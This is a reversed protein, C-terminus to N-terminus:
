SIKARKGESTDASSWNRSDRVRTLLRRLRVSLGPGSGSTGSAAGALGFGSM